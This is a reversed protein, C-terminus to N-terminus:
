LLYSCRTAHVSMRFFYTSCIQPVRQSITRFVMFCIQPVRKQLRNLIEETCIHPVRQMAIKPTLCIHLVRQMMFYANLCIQGVRQM